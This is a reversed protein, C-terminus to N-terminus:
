IPIWDHDEDGRPHSGDSDDSASEYHEQPNDVKEVSEVDWDGLIDEKTTIKLWTDNELKVYYTNPQDLYYRIEIAEDRHKKLWERIVEDSNSETFYDKTRNIGKAIIGGFFGWLPGGGIAGGVIFCLLLYDDLTASSDFGYTEQIWNVSERGDLDIYKMPNNLCYVYPNLSQPNSLRGPKPDRTIFRGITPDYYRAGYYYLGTIDKEKGTYKYREGIGNIDSGFEEYEEEEIKNGNEDTLLRTSLLHDQHYYTTVGDVIKAIRFGNAYLYKTEVNTTLNKEYVVNNGSWIYLITENNEIKKYRNGNADYFYQAITEGNKKVETLMNNYDYTYAYTETGDTKSTLNGNNDYSYTYTIDGGPTTAVITVNYLVPSVSSDNTKLVAKFQIWEQVPVQTIDEYWDSWTESDPSSRFYLDITQGNLEEITEYSDFSIVEGADKPTSIYTAEGPVSTVVVEGYYTYVDASKVMKANYKSRCGWHVHGSSVIDSFDSTYQQTLTAKSSQQHYDRYTWTGNEKVYLYYGWQQMFGGWGSGYGKATIDIQTITNVDESIATDFRHIAYYTGTISYWAYNSDDEDIASYEESTFETTVDDFGEENTSAGDYAQSDVDDIKYTQTATRNADLSIGDMSGNNVITILTPDYEGEEWVWEDIYSTGSSEGRQEETLNYINYDYYATDTATGNTDIKEMRNGLPDYEYETSTNGEQVKTLRDLEDYQYNVDNLTIINGVYDYSYNLSLHSGIAINTIRNRNDYSFNTTIGNGHNINTVRSVSNYGFSAYTTTGYGMDTIRNLPDYNYYLTFLDPYGLSTLNSVDDYDYNLPYSVGDIIRTKSTMRNRNDYTYQTETGDVVKTVNGHLDYEYTVDTGAPYDVLTLQYNNDYQYSITAGNQDTKQTLNGMTDYTFSEITSDPYTIGTLRELDDYNFNKTNNLADKIQILSITDYTYETVYTTATFEKVKILRQNNDYYYEKKHDNEDFFTIKNNIDDYLYEKESNDPNIIKKTRGLVDYEYSTIHGLEDKSTKLKGNYYYTYEKFGYPHEEKILRGLGDFYNTLTHNNEDTITIKNNVDDYSATKYTFDPNTVKTVRNILDYEYNYTNGNEDKLTLLNGYVDHSMNLEGIPKTIKTLYAHNADYQFSVTTEQDDTTSTLNGYADYANDTYIWSSDHKQKSQTLNGEANYQYYTEIKRGSNQYAEGVCLSHTDPDVSSNNYFSDSFVTVDNGNYDVFKNEFNTNVYSSYYVYGEGDKVYVVNGWDDRNYYLPYMFTGNHYIDEKKIERNENYEYLIKRIENESANKIIKSSCLGEDDFNLNIIKQNSTCDSITIDTSNIKYYDGNYVYTVKKTCSDAYITQNKVRYKEDSRQILSPNEGYSSCSLISTSTSWNEGDLSTTKRLSPHYSDPSNYLCMFKFDPELGEYDYETYAGTPYIIKSILYENLSSNYEFQTVRNVPDAVSVLKDGSYTYSITKGGYSISTLKGNQYIFNVIRNITDTITSIGNENYNFTITNGNTDEIKTLKGATDFYYKTGTTRYLVYSGDGEKQLRFHDGKHNDFNNGDWEIKYQKGDELYIYEKGIWPFNLKWVEGLNTTIYPDEESPKGRMFLYPSVYIREIVLDLGRGPLIFDKQKIILQGTVPSVYEDLNNFYQGYSRLGQLQWPDTVGQGGLTMVEGSDKEIDEISDEDKTSNTDLSLSMTAILVILVFSLVKREEKKRRV